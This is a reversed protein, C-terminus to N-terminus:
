TLREYCLVPLYAPMNNHHQNYGEAGVVWSKTDVASGGEGAYVIHWPSDTGPNASMANSDAQWSWYIGRHNHSPLEGVAM